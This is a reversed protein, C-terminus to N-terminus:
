EITPIEITPVTYEIIMFIALEDSSAGMAVLLGDQFSAFCSIGDVTYTYSNTAKDYEAEEYGVFPFTNKMLQEWEDCVSAWDKSVEKKSWNPEETSRSYEVVEGEMLLPNENEKYALITEKTQDGEALWKSEYYADDGWFMLLNQGDSSIVTVSKNVRASVAYEVAEDWEDETFIQTEYVPVEPKAIVTSVYEITMKGVKDETQMGLKVLLGDEFYARFLVDAAGEPLLDSDKKLVYEYCKEEENYRAEEYSDEGYFSSKALEEWEGCFESWSKGWEWTSWGDTKGGEGDSYEYTSREYVSVGQEDNIVIRERIRDEEPYYEWDSYYEGAWVMYLISENLESDVGIRKNVGVSTAKAFAERWEAESFIKTEPKCVSLDVTTTGYDSFSFTYETIDTGDESTKFSEKMKAEIRVVKGDEFRLKVSQYKLSGFALSECDMEGAEYCRTEENYSFESYKDFLPMLSLFVEGSYGFGYAKDVTWETQSSRKSYRTYDTEQKEYYAEWINSESFKMSEYSNGEAVKITMPIAVSEEDAIEGSLTVNNLTEAKFSALWGAQSVQNNPVYEVKETKLRGCATCAFTKIGDSIATPPTTIEGENWIHEAKESIESCAEGTCEYWHYTEDKTWEASYMHQHETAPEETPNTACGAFASFAAVFLIAILNQKINM